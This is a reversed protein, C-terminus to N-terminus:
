VRDTTYVTAKREIAPCPLGPRSHSASPVPSPVCSPQRAGGSDVTFPCVECGLGEIGSGHRKLGHAALLLMREHVEALNVTGSCRAGCSRMSLKWASEHFLRWFRRPTSCLRRHLRSRRACVSRIYSPAEALARLMTEVAGHAICHIGHAGACHSISGARLWFSAYAPRDNASTRHGLCASSSPLALNAEQRFRDSVALGGGLLPWRVARPKRASMRDRGPTGLSLLDRGAPRITGVRICVSRCSAPASGLATLWLGQGSPPRRTSWCSSLLGLAVSHVHMLGPRDRVISTSGITTVSVPPFERPLVLDKPLREYAPSRTGSRGELHHWGAPWALTCEFQCQGPRGVCGSCATRAYSGLYLLLVLLVGSFRRHPAARAHGALRSHPRAALSGRRRIRSPLCRCMAFINGARRPKALSVARGIPFATCVWPVRAIILTTTMASM